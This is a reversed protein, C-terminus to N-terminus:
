CETDKCYVRQKELKREHKALLLASVGMLIMGIFKIGFALYNRVQEWKSLFKRFYSFAQIFKTNDYVFCSGERGDKNNQWVVCSLDLLNSLFTELLIM